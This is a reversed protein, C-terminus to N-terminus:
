RTGRGLKTLMQAYIVIVENGGTMTVTPMVFTIRM